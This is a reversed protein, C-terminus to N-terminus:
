MDGLHHVSSNSFGQHLPCPGPSPAPFYSMKPWNGIKDATYGRLGLKNMQLGSVIMIIVEM